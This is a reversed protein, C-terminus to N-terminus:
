WLLFHIDGCRWCIPHLDRGKKKSIFLTAGCLHPIEDPPVLGACLLNIVKSLAQLAANCPRHCSLVCFTTLESELLTLLQAM